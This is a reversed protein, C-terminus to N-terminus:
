FRPQTVELITLTITLVTWASLHPRTYFASRCVPLPITQPGFLQPGHSRVMTYFASQLKRVLRSYFYQIVPRHQPKHSKRGKATKGGLRNAGQSKRGMARERGPKNAGPQNAWAGQVIRGRAQEGGLKNAGQSIRGRVKSSEGRPKNAGM